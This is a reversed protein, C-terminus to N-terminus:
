YKACLLQIHHRNVRLNDVGPGGLLVFARAGERMDHRVSRVGHHRTVPINLLAVVFLQLKCHRTVFTSLPRSTEVVVPHSPPPSSPIYKPGWYVFLTAREAGWNCQILRSIAESLSNQLTPDGWHSDNIRPPLTETKEKLIM